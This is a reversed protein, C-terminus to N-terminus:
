EPIISGIAWSPYKKHGIMMVKQMFKDACGIM